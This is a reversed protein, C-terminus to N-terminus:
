LNVADGWDSHEAKLHETMYTSIPVKKKKGKADSEM